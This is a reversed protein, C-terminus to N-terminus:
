GTLRISRWSSKRCGEPRFRKVEVRHYKGDRRLPAPYFGLVYYSRSEVVFERAARAVDSRGFAARGGTNHSVEALMDRQGLISQRARAAMQPSNIVSPSIVSTEPVVPGRPDLSYISVNARRYEEAMDDLRNVVEFYSSGLAAQSLVVGGSILLVARRGHSSGDLGRGISRLTDVLTLAYRPRTRRDLRRLELGGVDDGLVVDREDVAGIGFGLATRLADLGISIQTADNTPGIGLDSRGVFTLSVWDGAGLDAVFAEIARRAPVLDSPLLHLDDFVIAFLRSGPQVVNDVVDIALPPAVRDVAVPAPLTVLRLDAITQLRGGDKVTLDEPRLDLVPRGRSDTAVVDLLVYDTASRFAPQQASAGCIGLCAVVLGVGLRPTIHTAM